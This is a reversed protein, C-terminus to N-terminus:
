GDVAASANKDGLMESRANYTLFGVPNWRVMRTRVDIRRLGAGGDGLDGVCLCGGNDNACLGACTRAIVASLIVDAKELRSALM